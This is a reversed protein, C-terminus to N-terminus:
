GNAHPASGAHEQVQEWTEGSLLTSYLGLCGSATAAQSICAAEPPMAAVEAHFARDIADALNAVPDPELRFYLPADGAIEHIVPLETAVVRCGFLLAELVPLCFGERSSNAVFVTCNRYYWALRRDSVPPMWCVSAELKLEAALQHLRGTQPGPSGIIVLRLGGHEARLRAFARLLLDLRKNPQHQAVALLFPRPDDEPPGDEPALDAYNHVVAVPIRGALAPFRELLEQRTSRSVCLVGDCAAMCRRFFMRRGLGSFPSCSEPDDFPYLDHVTVVVPVRFRSRLVPVPFGLHVLDPRLRRALEPLGFVFWGNRELSTNALRVPHVRIMPSSLDFATRFYEEQWQGVALTIREVEGRTALSRALNAAHRCIGTPRTFRSVSSILVHM